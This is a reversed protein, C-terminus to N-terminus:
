QSPIRMVHYWAQLLKALKTGFVLSSYWSAPVLNIALKLTLTNAQCTNSLCSIQVSSKSLGFLHLNWANLITGAPSVALALTEAPTKLLL